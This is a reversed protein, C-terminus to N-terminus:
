VGCRAKALEIYEPNLDILIANRGHQKAVMGTTGSGGFPDLVVGGVPCGALVCSEILAPPFTAFHAGKYPKTPVTWVSRKNRKEHSKQPIDSLNYEPRKVGSLQMEDKQSDRQKLRRQPKM